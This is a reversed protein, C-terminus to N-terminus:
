RPQKNVYSCEDPSRRFLSYVPIVVSAEVAWVIALTQASNQVLTFSYFNFAAWFGSALGLGCIPHLLLFKLPSSEPAQITIM